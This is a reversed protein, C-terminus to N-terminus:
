KQLRVSVEGTALPHRQGRADEVILRARDDINLATAPYQGDPTHVTIPRDLLVSRARYEDLFAPPAALLPVLVRCIAAALAERLNERPADLLTAAHPELEDPFSDEPWLNIGIGIFIHEGVAETLIGCVKKGDVELDNVWKIGCEIGCTEAIARCVAVAAAPTILHLTDLPPRELVLTMYLGGQPSFFNRGLRGRGATQREAVVLHPATLAGALLAAKAASQTSDTEKLWTVPIPFRPTEMPSQFLKQNEM